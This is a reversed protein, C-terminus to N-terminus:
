CRQYAYDLDSCEYTPQDASSRPPAQVLSPGIAHNGPGPSAPQLLLLAGVMLAAVLWASLLARAFGDTRVVADDNRDSGLSCSSYGQGEENDERHVFRSFGESKPEFPSAQDLDDHLAM